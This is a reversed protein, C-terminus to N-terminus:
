RPKRRRRAKKQLERYRPDKWLSKLARSIAKKATPTHKRGM